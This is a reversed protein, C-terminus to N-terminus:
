KNHVENMIGALDRQDCFLIIEKVHSKLLLTLSKRLQKRDNLILEPIMQIDFRPWRRAKAYFHSAERVRAALVFYLHYIFGLTEYLRFM